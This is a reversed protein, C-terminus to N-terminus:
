PVFSINITRSDANGSKDTAVLTLEASMNATVGPPNFHRHYIYYNVGKADAPSDTYLTEGNAKLTATFSELRDNETVNLLIHLSDVSLDIVQNDTPLNISMSPKETDKPGEDKGCAVIIITIIIPVLLTKLRNFRM